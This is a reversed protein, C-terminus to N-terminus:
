KREFGQKHADAHTVLGLSDVWLVSFRYVVGFLLEAEAVSRNVSGATAKSKSGNLFFFVLIM